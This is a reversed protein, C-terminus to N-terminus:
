RSRLAATRARYIRDMYSANVLHMSGRLEVHRVLRQRSCTVVQGSEQWRVSVENRSVIAVITGIGEFGELRVKTGIDM